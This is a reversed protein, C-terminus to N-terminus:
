GPERRSPNAARTRRAAGAAPGESRRAGRSARARGGARDRPGPGAPASRAAARLAGAGHPDHLPGPRSPRDGGAVRPPVVRARGAAAPGLLARRHDPRPREPRLRRLGQRGARRAPAGGHRNRARGGRGAHGAVAGPDAGARPTYQAGLPVLVHLGTAGSTKVHSPLELEDLLRHVAQAVRVVDTFPAGKPDLDLVLWDPRELSPVRASWAHIPITGLNAVYRLAEAHDVVFYEIDRGTDRSHVRETRVWPRAFEPADKQFFSKGAIGDPYRTLVIPRDRLYPLMMPAIADYYRVLDGKTYGEAPWFVKDLNTLRVRSVPAGDEAAPAPNEPAPRLRRQRMRARCGDGGSAPRALRADDPTERRCDEPRVDDRLGLYTPHRIGGDRTWDTYRVEAVLRPEVWHHGRGAPTGADFPSTERRIPGLRKWLRELEAGDFGTGVKSVYVLRAGDYLGLHLAGFRARSGQPDTYGGIVFEQRRHCKIKLWADSRRPVYASTRRKAVIGELGAEAAAELFAPGAGEVHDGFRAVGRPPLVRELCAKRAALPLRRLDHGELALCDFFVAEVPVTAMARAVDDPRTLGMRAQLRQFSPVGRPGLAVIEGDILFRDFAVARLASVLEPYRGTVVQGSRGLLTVVDGRREALVRVGDYKVEFLWDAGEPPRTALTALMLGQERAPVEARPARLARLLARLEGAVSRGGGVTGGLGEPDRTQRYARLRPRREDIM